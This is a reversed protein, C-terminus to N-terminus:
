PLENDAAWDEGLIVLIDEQSNPDYRQFIKGPPVRLLDSLYGLTYPKGSYNIITTQDYIQEANSINNIKINNDALYEGTRAALGPTLTGNRISVLANEEIVRDAVNMEVVVEPSKQNESPESSFFRDRIRLIEEPIPQLIAMGEFSIANFVQEPGIYLQQINEKPIQTALWALQVAQQLTLNTKIGSAIENYLIPAKKILGPLIEFSIVRERIGVLVQQQREARDFDSGATDRNRVYALAIDGPLTQVGPQLIRTNHDGLPDVQIAEPVNIKVGEIEDVLHIFGNFDILVYYPVSIGMLSEVTDIALGAGGEQLQDVEGFRYAQNIKNYGYGPINVWLDRPISMMGATQGQPNITALIITDARPPGNGTEWDRHDVGMLLLTVRSKGDWPQPPPGKGEHLPKSVDMLSEQSQTAVPEKINLHPIEGEPSSVANQVLLFAIYATLSAFILFSLLLFWVM